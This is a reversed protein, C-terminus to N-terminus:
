AFPGESINIVVKMNNDILGKETGSNNVSWVFNSGAIITGASGQQNVPPIDRSSGAQLDFLTVSIRYNSQTTNNGTLGQRLVQIECEGANIGFEKMAGLIGTAQKTVPAFGGAQMVGSGANAPSDTYDIYQFYVNYQVTTLNADGTLNVEWQPNIPPIPRLTGQLDITYSTNITPVVSPLASKFSYNFVSFFEFGPLPTANATGTVTPLISNLPFPDGPTAGSVVLRPPSNGGNQNWFPVDEMVGFSNTAQLTFDNQDASGVYVLSDEFSVSLNVPTQPPTYILTGSTTMTSTGGVVFVGSQGDNGFTHTVTGSFNPDVITTTVPTGWEWNTGVAGSVTTFYNNSSGTVSPRIVNSATNPLVSTVSTTYLNAPKNAPTGDALEINVTDYLFLSNSGGKLQIEASIFLTASITQQATTLLVEGSGWTDFYQTVPSPVIGANNAPPQYVINVIEYNPDLIEINPGFNYVLNQANTNTAQLYAPPTQDYPFFYSQQSALMTVQWVVGEQFSSLNNNIGHLSQSTDVTLQVRGSNVAAPTITAALTINTVGGGSAITGTIPGFGTKNSITAGSQTLTIGVTFSFPTGVVGTVPQPITLNYQGSTAQTGDANLIGSVSILVPTQTYSTGPGVILYITNPDKNAIAQYEAIALTVIQDARATTDYGVDTNNKIKNSDNNDIYTKILTLADNPIDRVRTSKVNNETIKNYNITDNLDIATNTLNDAIYNSTGTYQLAIGPNSTNNTIPAIGLGSNLATVTGPNLASSVTVAGTGGSVTVNGGAAMSIVGTNSVVANGATTVVGIGAGATISDVLADTGPFNLELFGNAGGIAQVNGTFNISNLNLTLLVGENFGTIETPAPGPLIWQGDGRLFYLKRDTIAAPLGTALLSATITGTTTITGPTSTLSIFRSPATSISTVTAIGMSGRISDVIGSVSFNRTVNDESTDSAIIYDSLLLPSVPYKFAQPM